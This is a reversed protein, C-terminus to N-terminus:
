RSSRPQKCCAASRGDPRNLIRRTSVLHPRLPCCHSLKLYSISFPELENVELVLVHGEAGVM